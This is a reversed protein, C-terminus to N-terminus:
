GFRRMIPGRLAGAYEKLYYKADGRHHFAVAYDPNLRIAENYDALAGAYQELKVKADGRDRFAVANLYYKATGRARFAAAYDPNWGFRRM